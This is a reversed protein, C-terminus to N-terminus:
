KLLRWIVYSILLADFLLAPIWFDWGSLNAWAQHLSLAIV